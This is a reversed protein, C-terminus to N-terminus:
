IYTSYEELACFKCSQPILKFHFMQAADLGISTYRGMSINVSFRFMGSLFRHMRGKGDQIKFAFMSSTSPPYTISRAIEGTDSPMKSSNESFYYWFNYSFLFSWSIYILLLTRLRRTEDDDDPTLEMASDWFRQLMTNAAESNVGATSGVQFLSVLWRMFDESLVCHLLISEAHWFKSSSLTRVIGM